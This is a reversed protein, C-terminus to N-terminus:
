PQDGAAEEAAVWAVTREHVVSSLTSANASCWLDDFDTRLLEHMGHGHLKHYMCEQENTPCLKSPDWPVQVWPEGMIVHWSWELEFIIGEQRMPVPGLCPHRADCCPHRMVVTPLSRDAEHWSPFFYAAHARNPAPSLSPIVASRCSPCDISVLASTFGPVPSLRVEYALRFLLQWTAKPRALIRSRHVLFTACCAFRNHLAGPLASEMGAICFMRQLDKANDPDFWVNPSFDEQTGGLAAFDYASTNLALM